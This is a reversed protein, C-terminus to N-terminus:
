RQNRGKERIGLTGNSRLNRDFVNFGRRRTFHDSARRCKLFNRPVPELEPNLSVFSFLQDTKSFM